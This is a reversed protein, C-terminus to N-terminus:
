TVGKKVGRKTPKNNVWRLRTKLMYSRDEPAKKKKVELVSGIRAPKKNGGGGGGKVSLASLRVKKTSLM